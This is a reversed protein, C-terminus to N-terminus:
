YGVFPNLRHRAARYALPKLEDGNVRQEDRSMRMTLRFVLFIFSAAEEVELSGVQLVRAATQTKTPM